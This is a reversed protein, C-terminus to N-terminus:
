SDYDPKNGSKIRDILRPGFVGLAAGIALALASGNGFIWALISAAVLCISFTLLTLEKPSLPSDALLVGELAGKVQQEFNPSAVGAIIGLIVTLLM